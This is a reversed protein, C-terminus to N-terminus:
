PTTAAPLGQSDLMLDSRVWLIVEQRLIPMQRYVLWTLWNTTTAHDWDAVETLPLAEGRYDAALSLKDITSIVMPPTADPALDTADTVQWDRFLWHLAPSDVNLITLPLQAAAGANLDSIQSAVSLLVDVRVTRPEPQWLEVTLPVRVGAAGTSMAVTFATLALVASWVGGLRASAASWGARVLLLSLAILIVVALLLSLRVRAEQTDLGMTTVGALNLWGFVLLADVLVMVGAIEWLKRGAFDFHHGLEMAALVWLPLLAWGLDTTQKGPYIIALVLAVLAWIGLRISLTDRRIIGRVAAAIGFGLPLIEYAPLALLPRWIQTDSLTWWGRLFEVFSSVFASLGIPSLILLSGLALLTGLGWALASSYKGSRLVSIEPSTKESPTAGHDEAVPSGTVIEDPMENLKENPKEDTTKAEILEPQDGQAEVQARAAARRDIVTTLAWVLMLGLMGFWVSPGSLLALAAFFGALSRHDELWMLGALVLCTIALMPGGALHSMAVLGPDIALGFALVIAPVRGIRARLFWAALVLACGALAPWFRALFNSAGFIYFLVATLHVYGPNPGLAPHLGQTVRLAQLAWNAEFDSLPLAGLNLFRLGIAFVLALAYFAHELTPQFKIM